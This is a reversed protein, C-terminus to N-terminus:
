EKECTFLALMETSQDQKDYLGLTIELNPHERQIHSLDSQSRLAVSGRLDLAKLAPVWANLLYKFQTSTPTESGPVFRCNLYGLHQLKFNSPIYTTRTAIISGGIFELSLLSPLASLVDNLMTWYVVNLRRFIISTLSPLKLDRLRNPLWQDVPQWDLHRLHPTM